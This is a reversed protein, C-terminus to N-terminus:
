IEKVSDSPMWGTMTTSGHLAIRAWNNEHLLIRVKAGEHLTFAVSFDPGPATKVDIARATVVAETIFTAEYIKAYSCLISLIFAFTLIWCPVGLGNRLGERPTLIRIAWFVVTLWFLFLSALLAERINFYRYVSRTIVIVGGAHPQRLEEDTRQSRAYDLNVRLDEHRPIYRMAREYWLIADGLRDLAFYTNGLNYYLHGNRIGLEHLYIYGALAAEFQSDRYYENAQRWVGERDLDSEYGAPRQSTPM